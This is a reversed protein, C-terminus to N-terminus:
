RYYCVYDDDHINLETAFTRYNKKYIYLAIYFYSQGASLFPHIIGYTFIHSFDPPIM